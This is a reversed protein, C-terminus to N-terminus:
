DEIELLGAGPAAQVPYVKPEISTNTYYRSSVHEAFEDIKDQEVFAAMCGGFGAGAQRAAIVGPGSLMAGMMMEMEPSSIEYLDCAGAYSQAALTRIKEREGMSIAEAIDLVRQNEEIVFRCRKAVIPPLDSEHTEFMEITVDRLATVQPYFSAFIRAGQECQARREPYESGTLERKAQTDCIVVQIGDAVL